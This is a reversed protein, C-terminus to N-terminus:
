LAGDERCRVRDARGVPVAPHLLPAQIERVGPRGLVRRQERHGVGAPGLLLAAQEDGADALATVDVRAEREEALERGAHRAGVAEEGVQEGPLSREFPASVTFRLKTRAATRESAEAMAEAWNSPMALKLIVVPEPGSM